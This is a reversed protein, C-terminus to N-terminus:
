FKLRRGKEKVLKKVRKPFAMALSQLNHNKNIHKECLKMKIVFMAYNKDKDDGWKIPSAKFFKRVGVAVSEHLLLDPLDPPQWTALNGAFPRFGHKDLAKRYPECIIGNGTNYFGPGRDSFIVRPKPEDGVMDELIKPLMEVLTAMGEGNQKWDDKMIPFRVKGRSFIIFWWVRQDGWHTQKGAYPSAKLNRSYIRADKSIWRPGKGNNAHTVDFVAKPTGPIVTNCPDMWTCHRQYWSASQELALIEKGWILRNKMLWEPLATKCLPQLRAWPNSPDLDYCKTKFVGAILKEDFAKGTNPNIAASPCRAIVGAVTPEVGTKKLAMAAKSIATKKQETFVVKPGRKEGEEEGKGPYWDPDEDFALRLKHVAVKSPKGGGVKRVLKRIDDSTVKWDNQKAMAHMGFVKAKSWPSLTGKRGGTWWEAPRSFVVMACWTVVVVVSAGVFAQTQPQRAAHAHLSM